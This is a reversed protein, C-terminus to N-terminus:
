NLNEILEKKKVSNYTLNEISENYNMSESKGSHKLDDVHSIM